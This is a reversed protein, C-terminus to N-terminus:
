VSLNGTGGKSAHGTSSTTSICNFMQYVRFAATFGGSRVDALSAIGMM